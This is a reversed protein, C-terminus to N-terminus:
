VGRVVPVDRPLRNIVIDVLSQGDWFRLRIKTKPLSRIELPFLKSRALNNMLHAM